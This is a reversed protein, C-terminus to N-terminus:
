SVATTTSKMLSSPLYAAFNDDAWDGEDDEDVVFNDVQVVGTTSQDGFRWCFVSEALTEVPVYENETDHIESNTAHESRPLSVSPSPVELSSTQSASVDRSWQQREQEAL